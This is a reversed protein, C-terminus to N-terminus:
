RRPFAILKSLRRHEPGGLAVRPIDERRVIHRGEETGTESYVDCAISTRDMATVIGLYSAGNRHYLSVVEQKEAVYALMEEVSSATPFTPWTGLQDMMSRAISELYAGGSVVLFLEEVYGAQIEDPRGLEDVTAVAYGSESLGIVWGVTFKEPDDERSYIGLLLKEELSRQLIDKRLNSKLAM